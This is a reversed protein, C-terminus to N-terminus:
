DTEPLREFTLERGSESQDEHWIFTGEETFVITGTGNEYELDASQVEGKDDYVVLTKTCGSYRITKTDADLRGTINWYAFETKSSGQEIAVQASDDGYAEVLALVQGCQYRGAYGAAPNQWDPDEDFVAVYEANEELLVTIQADTSYDEGNKTWKVFWSGANPWAVCTYTEPAALSIQASQYAYEPELEPAKEGQASNINGRGEVRFTILIAEELTRYPVFHYTEGGEVTLLLGDAGEEAITVTLAEKEGFSPLTGQLRKGELSLMGSWVDESKDEGLLCGVYWGPEDVDDLWAISLMNAAKDTFYGTRPWLTAEKTPASTEPADTAEPGSIPKEGSCATLAFVLCVALLMYFIKKM